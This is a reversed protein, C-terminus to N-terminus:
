APQTVLQPIHMRFVFAHYFRIPATAPQNPVFDPWISHSRRATDDGDNTEQSNTATVAVHPPSIKTEPEGTEETEARWNTDCSLPAASCSNCSLKKKCALPLEATPLDAAECPREGGSGRALHRAEGQMSGLSTIATRAPANRRRAAAQIWTKKKEELRKQM